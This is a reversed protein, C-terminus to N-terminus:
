LATDFGMQFYIIHFEEYFWFAMMEVKIFVRYILNKGKNVAFYSLKLLM